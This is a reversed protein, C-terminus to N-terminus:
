CVKIDNVKQFQRFFHGATNFTGRYVWVKHGATPLFADEFSYMETGFEKAVDVHPVNEVRECWWVDEPAEGDINQEKAIVTKMKTTNRLTYGGNGVQHEQDKSNCPKHTWPAGILDYKYFESKLPKIIMVDTQTILTFKAKFNDWLKPSSLLISYNRVEFAGEALQIL